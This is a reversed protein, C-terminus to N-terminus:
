LFERPSSEPRPRYEHSKFFVNETTSPWPQTTWAVVPSLDYYLMTSPDTFRLYM